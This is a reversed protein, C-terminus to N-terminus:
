DRSIGHETDLSCVLINMLQDQAFDLYRVMVMRRASQLASIAGGLDGVSEDSGALEVISSLLLPSPSGSNFRQHRREFSTVGLTSM